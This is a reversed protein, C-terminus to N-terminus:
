ADGTPAIITIVEQLGHKLKYLLGVQNIKTHSVIALNM